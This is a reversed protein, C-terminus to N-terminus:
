VHHAEHLENRTSSVAVFVDYTPAAAGNMGDASISCSALGPRMNMGTPGLPLWAMMWTSLSLLPLTVCVSNNPTDYTGKVSWGPDQTTGHSRKTIDSKM